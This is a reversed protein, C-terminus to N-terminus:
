FDKHSNENIPKSKAAFDKRNTCDSCYWNFESEKDFFKYHRLLLNACTRHFWRECISCCIVNHNDTNKGKCICDIVTIDSKGSNSNEEENETETLDEESDSEAVRRRKRQTSIIVTEDESSSFEWEDSRTLRKKSSSEKEELKIKRKPIAIHNFAKQIQRIKSEIMKEHM